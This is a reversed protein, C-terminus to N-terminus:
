GGTAIDRYCSSIMQYRHLTLIKSCNAPHKSPMTWRISARARDSQLLDLALCLVGLNTVSQEAVSSMMLKILFIVDLRYMTCIQHWLVSGSPKLCTWWCSYWNDLRLSLSEMGSKEVFSCTFRAVNIFTILRRHCHRCAAKTQKHRTCIHSILIEKWNTPHKSPM